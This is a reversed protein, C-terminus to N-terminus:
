RKLDRAAPRPGVHRKATVARHSPHGPVHTALQPTLGDVTPIAPLAPALNHSVWALGIPIESLFTTKNHAGRPLIVQWLQASTAIRDLATLDRYSQRDQRTALFLMPASTQSHRIRWGLDHQEQLQVSGGFLSGTTRDIAAANYGELSVATSYMTPYESTLITACYGGTSYGMIAWSSAQRGARFAATVATRVDSTLYTAAQPGRPVNACETDRPSAVNMIPLVAILPAITRSKIEADLTAAIHLVKIWTQPGGPYGDLLEVVPFYHDAYEASGYQPPLYVLARLSRIRSRTGPISLPVVAGRGSLAAAALQPRLAHDLNGAVVPTAAPAIPHGIVESWSAYFDYQSNLLVGALLVALIQCSLLAGVRLPWRVLPPVRNWGIATALMVTVTLVGVVCVVVFSTPEWM